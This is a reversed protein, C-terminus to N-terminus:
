QKLRGIIIESEVDMHRGAFYFVPTIVASM